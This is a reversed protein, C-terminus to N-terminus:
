LSRTRPHSSASHHTPKKARTPQTHLAKTPLQRPTRGHLAQAGNMPQPMEMAEPKAQTPGQQPIPSAKHPEGSKMHMPSAELEVGDWHDFEGGGGGGGGCSSCGSGHECGGDSGNRYGWLGGISCTFFEFLRPPCCRPGIWNGCGDCPDCADPPDSMWEGWYVDGCGACSTLQTRTHECLSCGLCGNGCGGYDGSGCDTQCSQGCGGPRYVRDFCCCGSAVVALVSFVFCASVYKPM